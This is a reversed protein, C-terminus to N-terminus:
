SARDLLFDVIREAETADVAPDGDQLRAYFAKAMMSGVLAHLFEASRVGPPLDGRAVGRELVEDICGLRIKNISEWEHRLEPDDLSDFVIRFTAMGAPSAFGDLLHQALSVLQDRAAGVDETGLRADFSRVAHLILAETTPFRATVAPRSCGAARAVQDVTFGSSGRAAYVALAADLIRADIAEDRPRGPGTRAATMYDPECLGADILDVRDRM